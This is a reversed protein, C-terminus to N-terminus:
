FRFGAELLVWLALAHIGIAWAWWVGLTLRSM